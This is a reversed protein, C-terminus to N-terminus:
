NIKHRVIIILGILRTKVIRAYQSCVLCIYTSVVGSLSQIYVPNYVGLDGFGIDRTVCPGRLCTLLNMLKILVIRTKGASLYQFTFYLMAVM